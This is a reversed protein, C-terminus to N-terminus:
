KHNAATLLMVQARSNDFTLLSDKDILSVDLFHLREIYLTTGKRCKSFVWCVRKDKGSGQSVDKTHVYCGNDGGWNVECGKAGPYKRCLRLCEEQTEYTNLTTSNIRNLKVQGSNQDWHGM